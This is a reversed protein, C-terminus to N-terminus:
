SRLTGSGAWMHQKREASGCVAQGCLLVAAVKVLPRGIGVICITARTGRGVHLTTNGSGHGTTGETTSEDGTVEGILKAAFTGDLDAGDDPDYTGDDRASGLVNGHEDDAAEDVANRDSDARGLNGDIDSFQGGRGLTTANDTSLLPCDSPPVTDM